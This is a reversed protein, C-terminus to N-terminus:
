RIKSCFNLAYSKDVNRISSTRNWYTIEFFKDAIDIIEAKFTCIIFQVKKEKAISKILKALNIRINSDLSADAEDLLIFPPKIENLFALKLSLSIVSRQGGSLQQLNFYDNSSGFNATIEIRCDTEESFINKSEINQSSIEEEDVVLSLKGKGGPVLQSFYENFNNNINKFSEVIKINKQSIFSKFFKEIKSQVDSISDLKQSYEEYYKFYKEYLTESALNVNPIDRMKKLCNERKKYYTDLVSKKKQTQTNSANPNNEKDEESKLKELKEIEEKSFDNRIIECSEKLKKHEDNIIDFNKKILNFNAENELFKSNYEKQETKKKELDEKIKGIKEKLKKKDEQYKKMEIGLQSLDQDINEELEFVEENTDQNIEIKEKLEKEKFILEEKKSLLKKIENELQNKKKAIQFTNNLNNKYKDMLDSETLNQKVVKNNELQKIFGLVEEQEKIVEKIEEKDIFIAGEFKKIEQNLIEIRENYDNFQKQLITLNNSEKQKEILNEETLKLYESDQDSLKDKNLKIEELEFELRRNELLAAQAKLFSTLCEKKSKKTSSVIFGGSRIIQNLSTICDVKYKNSLETGVEFNPVLLTRGLLHETLALIQEEQISSCFSSNIPIIKKLSVGQQKGISKFKSSSDKGKSVKEKYEELLDDLSFVEIIGGGNSNNEDIVKLATYENDVVIGFVKEKLTLELPLLYNSNVENIAIFDFVMGYVGKINKKLIKCSNFFQDKYLTNKLIEECDENIISIQTEKEKIILNVKKVESSLELRKKKLDNFRNTLIQIDQKSSTLSKTLSLNKNELNKVEQERLNLDNTFLEVSSKLKAIKDIIQIKLSDLEKLKDNKNNDQICILNAKIIIESEKDNIKIQSLEKEKKQIEKELLKYEKSVSNLISKANDKNFAVNNKSNNMVSKEIKVKSLLDIEKEYKEISSEIQKLAKQLKQLEDSKQSIKIMYEQDKNHFENLMFLFNNKEQGLLKLEKFKEEMKNSDILYDYIKKENELKKYVQLKNKNEELVKVISKTEKLNEQIRETKSSVDKIEKKFQKESKNITDVGIIENFDFILDSANDRILRSLDGQMVLYYCNKLFVQHFLIEADNHQFKKGNILLEEKHTYIDYKKTLKVEESEVPFYSTSNDFTMEVIIKSQNNYEEQVNKKENDEVIEMNRKQDLQKLNDRNFFDQKEEKTMFKNFSNILFDISSIFNSKGKGNEGLIINIGSDFETMFELDKYTRFNKLAITKLYM